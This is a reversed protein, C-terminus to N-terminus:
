AVTQDSLSAMFVPSGDSCSISLIIYLLNVKIVM